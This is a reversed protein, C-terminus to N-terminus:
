DSLNLKPRIHQLYNIASQSNIEVEFGCTDKSCYNTIKTALPTGLGEYFYVVNDAEYSHSYNQEDLALIEKDTLSFLFKRIDHMKGNIKFDDTYVSAEVPETKALSIL